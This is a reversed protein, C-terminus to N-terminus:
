HDNDSRSFTSTNAILLVLAAMTACHALCDRFGIIVEKGVPLM